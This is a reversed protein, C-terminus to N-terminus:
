INNWNDNCHDRNKVPFCDNIHLRSLEM